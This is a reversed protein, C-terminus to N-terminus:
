WLSPSPHAHLFGSGPIVVGNYADGGTLFGTTPSVTPALSTSYDKPSFFSENGWLSHYPNMISYRVGYEVVLKVKEKVRGM